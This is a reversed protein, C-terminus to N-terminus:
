IKIELLIPYNIGDLQNHQPSNKGKTNSAIHLRNTYNLLM